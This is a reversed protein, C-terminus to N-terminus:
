TEVEVGGTSPKSPPSGENPDAVVEAVREFPVAARRVAERVADASTAECLFFCTEDEPVFISRVYRVPSGERTLEEAAQRTREAGRVVADPDSRAVYLEVLFGTV